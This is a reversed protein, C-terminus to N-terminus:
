THIHAHATGMKGKPAAYVPSAILIVMIYAVYEFLAKKQPWGQIVCCLSSLAYTTPSGKM